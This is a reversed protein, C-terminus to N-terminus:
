IVCNKLKQILWDVISLCSWGLFLGLFGGITSMLSDKNMVFYEQKTNVLFEDYVFRLAYMNTENYDQGSLLKVNQHLKQISVEYSVTQCPKICKTSITENDYLENRLLQLEKRKMIIFDSMNECINTDNFGKNPQLFKSENKILINKM